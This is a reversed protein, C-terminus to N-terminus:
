SMNIFRIGSLALHGVIVMLTINGLIIPLIIEKYRFNSMGLFINLIDGPFPTFGTYLYICLSLVWKPKTGFWQKAREFYKRIGDPLSRSGNRGLYYFLTDGVTLALGASLGLLFPNSGGLVLTVYVALFGTSTFTSVGSVIGVLLILWYTNHIGINEVIESPSIYYSVVSVLTIIILLSIFVATSKSNLNM